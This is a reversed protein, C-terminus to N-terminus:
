AAVPVRKGLVIVGANYVAYYGMVVGFLALTLASQPTGFLGMPPSAAGAAAQQMQPYVVAMRYVLRAVFLASVALGIYLNPTYYCVAERVEFRTRTLSFWALAGGGAIAALIEGRTQMSGATALIGLALLGLVIARVLMNQPRLRQPGIHSRFRRYVAFLILGAFLLTPLAHLPMAFLPM